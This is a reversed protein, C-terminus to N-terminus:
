QFVGAKAATKVNRIQRLSSRFRFAWFPYGFTLGALVALPLGKPVLPDERGNRELIVFWSTLVAISALLPGIMSFFSIVGGILLLQLSIATLCSLLGGWKVFWRVIRGRPKIRQSLYLIIPLTSVLQLTYAIDNLPGFIYVGSYFIIIFVLGVVAMIASFVASWSLLRYTSETMPQQKNHEPQM